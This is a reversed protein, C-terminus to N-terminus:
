ELPPMLYSHWAMLTRMSSTLYGVLPRQGCDMEMMERLAMQRDLVAKPCAGFSGHNLFDVESSLGWLFRNSTDYPDSIM